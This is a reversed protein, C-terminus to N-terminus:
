RALVRAGNVAMVMELNFNEAAAKLTDIEEVLKQNERNAALVDASSAEAVKESAKIKEKIDRIELEIAVRRDKEELAERRAAELEERVSSVDQTSLQEKLHYLQSATQLFM